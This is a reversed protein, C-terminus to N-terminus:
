SITDLSHLMKMERRMACISAVITLVETMAIVLSRWPNELLTHIKVPNKSV